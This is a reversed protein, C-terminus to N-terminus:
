NNVRHTRFFYIVKQIKLKLGKGKGEKVKMKSCINSISIKLKM